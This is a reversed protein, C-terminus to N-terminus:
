PTGETHVIPRTAPQFDSGYLELARDGYEQAYRYWLYAWEGVGEGCADKFLAWVWRHYAAIGVYAVFHRIEAPTPERGYYATIVAITDEWTYDECCCIFVGVDSAPDGMGAYEWDILALRDGDVLLNDRYFDNHCLVPAVQDERCLDDLHEFLDEMLRFDPFDIRARGDIGTGGLLRQKLDRADEMLDFRHDITRGCMHLRRIGTMAMAVRDPDHYDFAATARFYRSLKWGTTPDLHIFTDDLGLEHAIAEAQAEAPRNLIGQTSVGPHRYVYAEGRACFRFSLNTLGELIPEFDSLDARDCELTRCINDLIASDINTIFDPDFARLDDLSDFEHIREAEYRRIHMDLEHVHDRYVTEWLKPATEPQDYVRDLIEVFRRSFDRDFYVHGMMVWSDKCGPTVKTIRDHAGVTLGWENTHGAQWVAAYYAHWVFPEFVNDTFYNDASCIYTNGLLKEVIKLTSNNNRSAFVPNVRIKVGFAHELYLFQEMKYGVVVTIDTIGAAQLQRITREVLVEGKVTLLGKPKEYSIPTLRTSMGAAMIIANEVRYPELADLGAPTLSFGEVFGAAALGRLTSNVTGLSLGTATALDRQTPAHNARLANLVEFQPRKLSNPM